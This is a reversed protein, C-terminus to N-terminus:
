QDSTLLMSYGIVDTVENKETIVEVQYQSVMASTLITVMNQSPKKIHLPQKTPYPLEPLEKNTLYVVDDEFSSWVNTVYAWFRIREHNNELTRIEKKEPKSM